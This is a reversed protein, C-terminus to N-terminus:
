HSGSPLRGGIWESSAHVKEFAPDNPVLIKGNNGNELKATVPIEGANPDTPPPIKTDAPPATANELVEASVFSSETKSCM